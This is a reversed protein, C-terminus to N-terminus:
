DYLNSCITSRSVEQFIALPNSIQDPIVTFCMAQGVYNAKGTIKGIKYGKDVGYAPEWYCCPEYLPFIDTGQTTDGIAPCKQNSWKQYYLQMICFCRIGSTCPFTMDSSKAQHYGRHNNSKGSLTTRSHHTIKHKHYIQGVNKM